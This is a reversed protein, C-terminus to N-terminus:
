FARTDRYRQVFPLASFTRTLESASFPFHNCVQQFVVQGEAKAAAIEEITLSALLAPKIVLDSYYM